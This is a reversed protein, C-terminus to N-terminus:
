VLFAFDEGEPEEGLALDLAMAAAVVCDIKLGSKRKSIRVGRETPATGVGGMQANLVPDNGHRLREDIVLRQLTETAHTMKEPSQPFPEMPVGRDKLSSALLGMYAPDYGVKALRYRAAMGLVYTEVDAPDIYDGERPAEFKKVVLHGAAVKRPTSLKPVALGTEQDIEESDTWIEVAGPEVYVTAVGFTDRSIAADIAMYVEAGDPIEPATGCAQWKAFPLWREVATTWQNLHLRRFAYEPLRGERVAKSQRKLFDRSVISDLGPNADAWARPDDVDADPAAEFWRMMFSDDSRLGSEIEKGYKYLDYCPGAPIPGATTLSIMLPNERAGQATILADYLDRSKEAAVHLEDVIAVNPNLGQENQADASVPIISADLDPFYIRDRQIQLWGDGARKAGLPKGGITSQLAMSAAARFLLRAQDRKGAAIIVNGGPEGDGVLLTLALAATLTTKANKRAVGVLIENRRRKWAGSTVDRRRELIEAILQDQFGQLELTSGAWKGETLKLKTMFSRASKPNLM